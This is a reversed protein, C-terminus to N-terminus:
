IFIDDLSPYGRGFEVVEKGPVHRKITIKRFVRLLRPTIAMEGVEGKHTPKIFQSVIKIFFAAQRGAYIAAVLDPVVEKSLQEM